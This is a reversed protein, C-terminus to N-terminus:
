LQPDPHADDGLELTSSIDPDGEINWAWLWVGHQRIVLGVGAAV